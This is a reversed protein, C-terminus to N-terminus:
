ISTNAPKRSCDGVSYEVVLDTQDHAGARQSM